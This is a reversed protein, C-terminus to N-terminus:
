ISNSIMGTFKTIYLAHQHKQFIAYIIEQTHKKDNLFNKQFHIPLASVYTIIKNTKEFSGVKIHTKKGTGLFFIFYIKLHNGFIYLKLNYHNCFLM